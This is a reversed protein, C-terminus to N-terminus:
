LRGTADALYELFFSGIQILYLLAFSIVVFSEIIGFFEFGKFPMGLLSVHEGERVRLQGHVVKLTTPGEMGSGKQCIMAGGFFPSGIKSQGERRRIGGTKKPQGIPLWPCIFFKLM